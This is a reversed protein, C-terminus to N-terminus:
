GSRAREEMILEVAWRAGKGVVMPCKDKEYGGMIEKQRKDEPDWKDFSRGFIRREIDDCLTSGFEEEFRASLRKVLSLLRLEKELNLRAEKDPHKMTQLNRGCSLGIAMVGGILAGCVSGTRGIGGAFGTAAKLADDSALGLVEQIALLTCQGCYHCEQSYKCGRNEAEQLLDEKSVNVRREYTESNRVIMKSNWCMM